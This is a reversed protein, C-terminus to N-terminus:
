QAFACGNNTVIRAWFFQDGFFPKILTPLGARLSAATTGATRYSKRVALPYLALRVCRWWSADRRRRPRLAVTREDAVKSLLVGEVRGVDHPVASLQYISAPMKPEESEEGSKAMRGSWGKALVCAVGATEVAEIINRTLEAPNSVTISGFGIYVIPKGAQRAGDLFAVLEAPPSWKSLDTELFRSPTLVM